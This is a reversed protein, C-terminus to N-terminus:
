PRWMGVHYGVGFPAGRYSQAARPPASAFVGALTQWPARGDMGVDACLTPDLSEVAARDGTALAEDVMTQVPAAREDFSGPAKKTLTRAGDALVLLAVPEPDADMQERLSVGLHHCEQPTADTAVTHLDICVESDVESRLWGAILASLELEPDPPGDTTPDLATRLDVGFGLFTGVVARGVGVRHVPRGAQGVGLAIWRRSGRGLERVAAVAALRLDAAESSQGALQPVLLPPAPVLAAATFM